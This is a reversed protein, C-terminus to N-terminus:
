RQQVLVSQDEAQGLVVEGRQARSLKGVEAAQLEQIKGLVVKGGQLRSSEWAQVAQAPEVERSVVEPRAQRSRVGVVACVDELAWISTLAASTQVLLDKPPQPPQSPEVQGGIAEQPQGLAQQICKRPEGPKRQGAVPQRGKVSDGELGQHPQLLELQRSIGPLAVALHPVELM